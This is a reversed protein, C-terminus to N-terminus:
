SISKIAERVIIYENERSCGRAHLKPAQQPCIAPLKAGGEM